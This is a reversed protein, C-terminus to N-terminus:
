LMKLANEIRKVSESKGLVWACEFPSPSKQAGTLAVRLPWLLDGRKDGAVELLKEEIKEKIWENEAIEEFTKQALKLSEMTQENTNTKWALMEKEISIDQFFFINEDGVDAFKTLREKEVTLVKKLYEGTKKNEDAKIFFDKQEFFPLANQLLEDDSLKKIYQGNIWDLKKIDFVAGAKHVKELEFKEILEEMSFIEQVSGEGPNWGLMTVFNVIAEKLYGKKIYDEVAVDGQRKSLKSRDPNLLLPLHAFQPIEWGFARYLLIHKPTSPLWDEGRIVHSIKMLHDDVVNALHYTPFGDSKMLVQDDINGTNFSVKGRISDEFEVTEDSPVKLRIVAPYKEKLKENIEDPSVNDLCYRDYMPAKKEQQQKERMENLREPECFCYYAKGDAVLQQAYKQYLETRESQAYPGFSGIEITKPYTASENTEKKSNTNVSTKLFNGEDWNLGMFNMSELLQEAAGDVFRAQDTDEIRILFDGGNKKAFLYNYLATRFNGVHMYGTPSPAFRVRIKKESDIM